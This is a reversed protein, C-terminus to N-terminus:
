SLKIGPTITQRGGQPGIQTRVAEVLYIGKRDPYDADAILVEDGPRVHPVLWADFSGKYRGSQQKRLVERAIQRMSAESMPGTKIVMRDGGTTGETIRRVHGQIDTSEVVVEQKEDGPGIWELSSKEINHQFSFVKRDGMSTYPPHIHLVKNQNDFWIDAKTEDSLKKLVDYGTANRIIFKEYTITYDCSVGFSADIQGTLYAAIGCISVGNFQKDGVPRRFLFLADECRIVTQGNKDTIDKVYGGFLYNPKGDYGARIEVETGRPLMDELSLRENLVTGPVRIEATDALNTIAANVTLGALIGLRYKKSGNRFSIHWDINFM